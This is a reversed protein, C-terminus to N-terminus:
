LDGRWKLLHRVTLYQKTLLEERSTLMLGLLRESGEQRSHLLHLSVLALGSRERRQPVSAISAPQLSHM